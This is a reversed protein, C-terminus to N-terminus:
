AKPIRLVQGPYIRDPDDLMPKNAEFIAPYKSANGYHQKAIQSLTDGKKVTYFTAQPAPKAVTLQDDVRAVGATNGVVLVVKERTEQDAVSGRLTATGGAFTVRFDQVPFGLQTVHRALTTAKALDAQADDAPKTEKEDDGIGLKKGAERIFDFVGM